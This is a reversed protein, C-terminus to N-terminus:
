CGPCPGSPFLERSLLLLLVLLSLFSFTGLNEPNEPGLIFRTGPLLSTSNM